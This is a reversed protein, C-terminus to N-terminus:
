RWTLVAVYVNNIKSYGSLTRCVAELTAGTHHLDDIVLANWYGSNQITQQLVFRGALAKEKEDKTNLNKLSGTNAAVASKVVINDFLPVDIRRAVETALEDVPQRSRVTSAPAPIVLGIKDFRPVIHRVLAKALPKVQDFDHRYKLQHVAEGVETRETDFTPHGYANYGVFVSKVTHKDLAYGETWNGSIARVHM